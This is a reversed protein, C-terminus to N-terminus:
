VYEHKKLWRMSFGGWLPPLYFTLLRFAISTSVAVSSPVGIAQLGAIYGAEAVGIGGPVPMLGAFLNVLTNILILQSLHATGGFALLCLGLVGAQLVQAGFNGTLLQGVKKPQRFVVLEGRAAVAQERLAARARPVESFIRRRLRPVVLAVVVSAVLLVIALALISPTSSATSTTTSSSSTISSTLGPLGSLVILLILTIQVAFGSGSDIIGISLAAGPEIGFRQFFRIELALRAATAPVVIAIFQIAYQLMLVPWYRLQTKSAGLTSFSYAIQVTPTLVLAGILWSVQATKLEDWVSAFDVGALSSLVFYGILVIGLLVLVSRLTVRRIKYLEPPEVGAADVAKSRLEGLKWDAASVAARLGRDLVAPQLFGLVETLGAAGIVETAGQVAREPGVLLAVTVLLRARDTMLATHDAAVHAAGFDALMLAGDDGLLVRTGDLRGHAVGLGHLAVLTQWSARVEADSLQRPALEALPTGEAKTVLLADGEASKGVTVIPRVPVGGREALLTAVAEHEVRELRTSGLRPTEGRNQLSSWTSTLVQGDWADRGFVKIGLPRGDAGVATFLAVGPVQVRADRLDVVEVELDDLALRVQDLTPRGGPSGLLLHTIAAAGIGVGLGAVVGIPLAVGLVVSAVAGLLLIWRGVSRVAGSLHPSATVVVATVVATRVALYVAPPHPSAFVRFSTNEPTGAILGAVVAIGLAIGAALLLDLALRRRGPVALVLLTLLIAWLGLVAYGLSWLWDLWSPLANAVSVLANDLSTPGPAAFALSVVVLVSAVLLLVDTPRRARPADAASSFVRLVARRAQRQM